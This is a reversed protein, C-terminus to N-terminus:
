GGRKSRAALADRDTQGAAMGQETGATASLLTRTASSPAIRSVPRTLRRRHRACPARWGGAAPTLDAQRCLAEGVGALNM